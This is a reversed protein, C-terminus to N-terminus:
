STTARRGRCTPRSSCDQSAARWSSAQLKHTAAGCWVSGARPHTDARQSGRYNLRSVLTSLGPWPLINCHTFVCPTFIAPNMVETKHRHWDPTKPYLSTAPNWWFLLSLMPYLLQERNRERGKLVRTIPLLNWRFISLGRSSWICANIWKSGFTSIAPKLLM